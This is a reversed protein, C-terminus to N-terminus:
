SRRFGLRVRRMPGTLAVGGSALDAAMVRELERMESLDRFVVRRGDAFQVSQVGEAMASRLAALQDSTYAM